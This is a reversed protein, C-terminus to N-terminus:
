LAQVYARWRRQFVRWSVGLERRTAGAIAERSLDSDAVATVWGRLRAAGWGDLVFAVTAGAAQYDLRVADTDPEGWIDGVAIADALPQDLGGTALAQKLPAYDQQRQGAVALGESLFDPRHALDTFWAFTYAHTVEHELMTRAWGEAGNLAPAVVSVDGLPWARSAVRDPSSTYYSLREEIESSYLGLANFAQSRTGYVFLAIARHDRLRYRQRVRARAELALNGLTAARQRWAREYIVVCGDVDLRAPHLFAMFYQEAVKPPTVDEVFAAEAGSASSPSPSGSDEQSSGDAGLEFLQFGLRGADRLPVTRLLVESVLRDPPGATGTRGTIRVDFVDEDGAVAHVHAALEGLRLPALRRYVADLRERVAPTAPTAARWADLDGAALAAMARRLQATVQREFGIAAREKASPTSAPSPPGAAGDGTCGVTGVVALAVCLAAAPAALSPRRNM